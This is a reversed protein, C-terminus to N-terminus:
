HYANNARRNTVSLSPLHLKSVIEPLVEAVDEHIVVDAASDIYTSSYNIIIIKAGNQCALQPLDCVPTVELSSGAVLMVDCQRAAQTSTQIALAPLQEGFLIVNPKLIGDCEPCHPVVGDAIVESMFEESHVRQFCRMCTAERMHGHVEAVESSGARQHLGDINQTIVLQMIGARELEALAIHAPNPEADHLLSALPRIWEYFREPKERFAFISAVEMPDVKDWLGSGASRFDPIGSPTSIGAGTFAVAHKADQLIQVAKDIM